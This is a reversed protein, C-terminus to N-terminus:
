EDFVIVKSGGHNTVPQQTVPNSQSDCLEKWEDRLKPDTGRRFTPNKEMFSILVDNDM